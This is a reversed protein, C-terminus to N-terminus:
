FIYLKKTYGNSCYLCPGCKVTMSYILECNCTYRNIRTVRPKRASKVIRIIKITFVAHSRSSQYNLRTGAIHRHRLSLQLLRIAEETSEVKVERLGVIYLVLSHAYMYKYLPVGNLTTCTCICNYCVIHM